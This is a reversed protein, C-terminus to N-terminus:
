VDPPTLGNQTYDAVQLDIQHLLNAKIDNAVNAASLTKMILCVRDHAAANARPDIGWTVLPDPIITRMAENENRQEILDIMADRYTAIPQKIYGWGKDFAYAYNFGQEEVFMNSWVQIVRADSTNGDREFVWAHCGMSVYVYSWNGDLTNRVHTVATGPGLDRSDVVNAWRTADRGEPLLDVLMAAWGGCSNAYMDRQDIWGAFEPDSVTQRAFAGEIEVMMGMYTHSMIREADWLDRTKRHESAARLLAAGFRGFEGVHYAFGGNFIRRLETMRATARARTKADRQFWPFRAGQRLSLSIAEKHGDPLVALYERMLQAAGAGYSQQISAITDDLRTQWDKM